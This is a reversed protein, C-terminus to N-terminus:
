ALQRAIHNRFGVVMPRPGSRMCPINGFIQLCCGTPMRRGGCATGRVDM